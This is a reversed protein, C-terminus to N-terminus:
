SKKSKKKAKKISVMHRITSSDVGLIKAVDESRAKNLLAILILLRKIAELPELPKKQKKSKNKSM